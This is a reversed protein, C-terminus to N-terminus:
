RQKGRHALTSSLLLRVSYRIAYLVQRMRRRKHIFTSQRKKVAGAASKKRVPFPVYLLSREPTRAVTLYSHSALHRCSVVDPVPPGSAPTARSTCALIVQCGLPYSSYRDDSSLPILGRSELHSVLGHVDSFHEDCDDWECTLTGQPLDSRRSPEPPARTEVSHPLSRSTTNAPVATQSVDSSGPSPSRSAPSTTGDM